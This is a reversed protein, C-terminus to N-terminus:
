RGTNLKLRLQKVSWQGFRLDILAFSFCTVRLSSKMSIRRNEKRSKM